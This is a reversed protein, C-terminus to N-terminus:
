LGGCLRWYTAPIYAHLAGIGWGWGRETLSPAGGIAVEFEGV